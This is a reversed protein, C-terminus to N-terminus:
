RWTIHKIATELRENEERLTALRRECEDLLLALQDESMIRERIEEELRAVHAKIEEIQEVTPKQESMKKERQPEPNPELTAYELPGGCEHCPMSVDNTLIECNPCWALSM